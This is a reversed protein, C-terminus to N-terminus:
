PKKQQSFAKLDWKNIKTKIEMTRPPPELCINSHNIDLHTRGINEELVKITKLRLNLEKVWKSNNKYITNSFM